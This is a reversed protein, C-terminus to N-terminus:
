AASGTTVLAYDTAGPSPALSSGETKVRVPNPRTRKSRTTVNAGCGRHTAAGCATLLKIWRRSINM